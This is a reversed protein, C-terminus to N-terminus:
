LTALERCLRRYVSLVPPKGSTGTSSSIEVWETFTAFLVTGAVALMFRVRPRVTQPLTALLADTRENAAATAAALLQPASTIIQYMAILTDFDPDAEFEALIAGFVDEVDALRVQRPDHQAFLAHIADDFGWRDYVLARDRTPFYRFFTRASVGALAAIDDVTVQDAGREVALTIAATHIERETQQRRRTRLDADPRTTAARTRQM